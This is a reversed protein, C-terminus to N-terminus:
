KHHPRTTLRSQTDLVRRQALLPRGERFLWAQIGEPKSSQGVIVALPNELFQANAQAFRGVSSIDTTSIRPVSQPHTHWHGILRMGMSNYKRIEDKCRDSDLQLWTWGARDRGDPATAVSLVLGRPDGPDIFLQGGREFNWARQRYRALSELLSAPVLVSGDVAPWSWEWLLDNM